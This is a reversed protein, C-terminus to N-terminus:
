FKKNSEFLKRCKARYQSFHNYVRMEANHFLLIKEPYFDKFNLRYPDASYVGSFLTIFHEYIKVALDGFYKEHAGTYLSSPDKLMDNLRSSGISIHTGNNALSINSIGKLYVMNRSIIGSERLKLASNLHFIM